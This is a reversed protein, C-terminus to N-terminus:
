EVMVAGWNGPNRPVWRFKFKGDYDVGFAVWSETWAYFPLGGYEGHENEFDFNLLRIGDERSLLSHVDGDPVAYTRQEDDSRPVGITIGIIQERRDQEFLKLWTAINAM